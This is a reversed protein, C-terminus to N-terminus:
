HRQRAVLRRRRSTGAASMLNPSLTELLSRVIARDETLPVVIIGDGKALVVSVSVGEMRSLLMDAYRAAAKLRTLGGPADDATMSYSIDFVFSVASGSKQVPGEYTGWSFGAYAFVLMIWAFCRLLTRVVLTRSLNLMRKVGQLNTDVSVIRKSYAVIGRYRRMEALVVPVILALSFLAHPRECSIVM